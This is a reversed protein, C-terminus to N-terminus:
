SGRFGSLGLREIALEREEKSMKGWKGSDLEFRRRLVELSRDERIGWKYACSFVLWRWGLRRYGSM